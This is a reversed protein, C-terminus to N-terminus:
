LITFLLTFAEDASKQHYQKATDTEAQFVAEQNDMGAALNTQATNLLNQYATLNRAMNDLTNLLPRCRELVFQLYGIRNERTIVDIIFDGTESAELAALDRETNAIKTRVVAALSQLDVNMDACLGIMATTQEELQKLAEEVSLDRERLAHTPLKKINAREWNKKTQQFHKLYAASQDRFRQASGNLLDAHGGPLDVQRREFAADYWTKFNTIDQLVADQADPFLNLQAFLSSTGGLVILIFLLHRM